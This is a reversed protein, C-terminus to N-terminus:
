LYRYLLERINARGGTEQGENAMRGMKASFRCSVRSHNLTLAYLSPSFIIGNRARLKTCTRLSERIRAPICRESCRIRLLNRIFMSWGAVPAPKVYNHARAIRARTCVDGRTSALSTLVRMSAHSTCMRAFDKGRTRALPVTSSRYANSNTSISDAHTYRTIVPPPVTETCRCFITFRRSAPRGHFSM